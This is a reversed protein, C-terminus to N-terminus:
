DDNPLAKDFVYLQNFAIQYENLLELYEDKFTKKQHHQEQRLIYRIVTDRQSRAYSFAGYGEQWRFKGKVLKNENIWKASSAKVLRMQDSVCLTVPMEFFLHVHDLWGGVALPFVGDNKLMAAIYSHLSDRFDKTIVKARNKVTFVCHINLQSYTNAM